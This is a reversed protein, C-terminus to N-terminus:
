GVMIPSGEGLTCIRVLLSTDCCVRCLCLLPVLDEPPRTVLSLKGHDGFHGVTTVIEQERNYYSCCSQLVCHLSVSCSYDPVCSCKPTQHFSVCLCLVPRAAARSSWPENPAKGAAHARYHKGGELGCQMIARIPLDLLKTKIICRTLQTELLRSIVPTESPVPSFSLFHLLM